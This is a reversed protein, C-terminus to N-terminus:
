KACKYISAFAGNGLREKKVFRNRILSASTVVPSPVPLSSRAGAGGRTPTKPLTLTPAVCAHGLRAYEQQLGVTMAYMVNVQMPFAPFSSAAVRYATTRRAQANSFPPCVQNPGRTVRADHCAFYHRHSSAYPQFKSKKRGFAPPDCARFMLRQIRRPHSPAVSLTHSPKFAGVTLRRNMKFEFSTHPAGVRLFHVCRPWRGTLLTPPRRSLNACPTGLNLNGLHIDPSAGALNGRIVPTKWTLTLM